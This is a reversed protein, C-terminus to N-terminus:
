VALSEAKISDSINKYFYWTYATAQSTKECQIYRWWAVVKGAVWYLTLLTVDNFYVNVKHDCGWVHLISSGLDSKEAKYMKSTNCM